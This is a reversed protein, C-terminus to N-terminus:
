FCAYDPNIQRIRLFTSSLYCYLASGQATHVLTMSVFQVVGIKQVSPPQYVGLVGLPHTELRRTNSFLTRFSLERSSRTAATPQDVHDLPFPLYFSTIPFRPLHFLVQAYALRRYLAPDVADLQIRPQLLELTHKIHAPRTRLPSRPPDRHNGHFPPPAVPLLHLPSERFLTRKPLGHRLITSRGQTPCFM